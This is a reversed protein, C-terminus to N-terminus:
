KVQLESISTFHVSGGALGILRVGGCETPTDLTFTYTRFSAGFASQLDSDPYDPTVTYGCETWEGDVLIELRLTGNKFWGGNDFHAGDTFEVATVKEAGRFIYGFYEEHDTYNYAFTDYQVKGNNEGAKPIHGDRIIEIDHCGTGKPDTVSVIIISKEAITKDSEDEYTPDEVGSFLVELESCSTFTSSGGPKGTVRVGECKVPEELKFTFTQYPLGQASADDVDIYLPDCSTPVDKWENDVFVQVSPKSAFWGGNDFHAGETYIVDTVTVKHDFSLAFWENESYKGTYTDYQKDNSANALTPRNGDCIVSIDRSGGGTPSKQSCSATIEFGRSGTNTVNVTASASATKDGLKATYTVTYTGNRTYQYAGTLFPLVTGDGMDFTHTVKGADEGVPVSIESLINIKGESLTELSLYAVLADDPWQEFAVAAYEKEVPIAFSGDKEEIGKLALAQKMLDFSVGVCDDFTFSTYSFKAGNRDLASVYVDELADFGYLTGLVAASSSPNCDSDQGCRMSIEITKAMDGDGWLLGMLIYAANLKADIDLNTGKYRVCKATSRWNDDIQKWCEEWTMGKEHCETVEDIVARFKTGEPIVLRAAETIEEVSDCTFAAAHLAAVYVGGYVGDGYNTIHGLEFARSAAENVLGPYFNGIFDAEIQWDIDDAHYNYLYSGSDPVAIGARLNSRGQFNAHDLGFLTDRFYDAVTEVGCDVGNDRMAEIFPIEVYLDDQGFASNIMESKWVPVNSAPIISGAYVFETPAGWTVGIMQAAWSGAIKDRLVDSSLVIKETESVEESSASLSIEDSNESSVTKSVDTGDNSECSAFSITLLILALLLSIHKKM